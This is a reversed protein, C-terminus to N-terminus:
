DPADNKEKQVTDNASEVTTDEAPYGYTTGQEM